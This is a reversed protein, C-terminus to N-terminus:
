LREAAPPVVAFAQVNARRLRDREGFRGAESKVPAAPAAVHDAM